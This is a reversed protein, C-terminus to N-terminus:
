LPDLTIREMALWSSVGTYSRLFQNEAVEIVTLDEPRGAPGPHAGERLRRFHEWAEQRSFPGLTTTVPEQGACRGAGQQIVVAFSEM